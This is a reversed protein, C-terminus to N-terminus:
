AEARFELALREQIQTKKFLSFDYNAIGHARIVPDTADSASCIAAGILPKPSCSRSSHSGNASFGDGSPSPMLGERVSLKM